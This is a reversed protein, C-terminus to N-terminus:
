VQLHTNLYINMVCQVSKCWFLIKLNQFFHYDLMSDFVWLWSEAKIEMVFIFNSVDLFNQNQHVWCREM